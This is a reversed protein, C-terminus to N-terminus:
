KGWFNDYTKRIDELAKQVAQITAILCDSTEESNGITEKLCCKNNDISIFIINESECKPVVRSSCDDMVFITDAVASYYIDGHKLKEVTVDNDYLSLIFEDDYGDWEADSLEVFSPTYGCSCMIKLLEVAANYKCVVSVISLPDEFKRYTKDVIDAFSVINSYYNIIM